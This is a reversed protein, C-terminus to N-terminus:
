ETTLGSYPLSKRKFDNTYPEGRRIVAAARLLLKNRINNLVLMKHKGEAIKREYYKRLESKKSNLASVAGIHLYKKMSKSGYFSVHGKGFTIGSSHEFPAVGAFCALQKGTKFHTFENTKCILNLAIIKGIGPVSTLLDIQRKVEKDSKIIRDIEIEIKEISENLGDVATQNIHKIKSWENHKYKTKLERLPVEISSFLRILRERNTLLDNLLTIPLRPENWFVLKDKNRISYDLIREADLSDNKGRQLGISRKINLPSEVCVLCNRKKIFRTFVIGYNGTHELTVLVKKGVTIGNLRLTKILEKFGKTNNDFKFKLLDPNRKTKVAFDLWGKSVDVGIFTDPEM